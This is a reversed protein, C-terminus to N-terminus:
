DDVNEQTRVVIFCWASRKNRAPPPVFRALIETLEIVRDDPIVNLHRLLDCVPKICNDLDRKRNFGKGGHVEIVVRAPTPIPRVSSSARVTLACETLWDEYAPSRYITRGARRWLRNASPPPPVILSVSDSM